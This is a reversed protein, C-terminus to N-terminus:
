MDQMAAPPVQHQLNQIWVSEWRGMWMAAWGCM